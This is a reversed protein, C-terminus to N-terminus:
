EQVITINVSTEKPKEQLNILKLTVGNTWGFGDQLPYEGGGAELTTDVVNYKEKLSGTNLYVKRVLAIWRRSIENALSFYGYNRLGSIVIWHLPAWGNPADWQQGTENLTTVVGGPFLFDSKIRKAVLSAQVSDALHFYLPFVGALTEINMLRKEKWHYDYYFGNEEDWFYQNIVDARTNAKNTYEESEALLGSDRYTAAITQELQYLLCNLDVPLVRITQITSLTEEDEFWRSSFDWGSEAASRINQYFVESDTKVRALLFDEKYSEPRPKKTSDFYRNLVKGQGVSVVRNRAFADNEPEGTEMWFQYERELQNRYDSRIALNNEHLLEVMLAFFPPQSRSLYYNRNGNPIFGFTDILYAFNDVMNKALNHQGSEILGILTFYSDWYYVEKFRGGPVVYSYPLPVLSAQDPVLTDKRLLFTWLRDIHDTMSDSLRVEYETSQDQQISFNSKVFERLNFNSSAGVQEYDTIISDLARNPVADVFTKSDTFIGSLQVDHFLRSSYFGQQGLKNKPSECGVLVALLLSLITHFFICLSNNM